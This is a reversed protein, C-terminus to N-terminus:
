DPKTPCVGMCNLSRKSLSFVCACLILYLSNSLSLTARRETWVHAGLCLLGHVYVVWPLGRGKIKVNAMIHVKVQHGATCLYFSKKVMHYILTLHSLLKSSPFIANHHVSLALPAIQAVDQPTLLIQM